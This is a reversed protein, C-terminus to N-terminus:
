ASPLERLAKAHALLNAEPTGDPVECGAASFHRPGGAASCARVAQEVESASGQLMVAVPDFNGCPAPGHPSLSEAARRLDVMWDLDVIRAGSTAMDALIHRTDGCIHLRPIAGAEEVAAFVRQEYPLVFARYQRASVLSGMSDGLGIIHAGSAVQARAFAIGVAVLRDLLGM